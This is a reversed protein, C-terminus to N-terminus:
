PVLVDVGDIQGAMWGQQGAATQVQWWEVGDATVPGALIAVYSGNPLGNPLLAAADLAPSQRLNLQGTTSQVRLQQRPQYRSGEIVGPPIYDAPIDGVG